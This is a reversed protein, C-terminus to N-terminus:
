KWWRILKPQAHFFLNAHSLVCLFITFVDVSHCIMQAYFSLFIAFDPKTIFTWQLFLRICFRVIEYIFQKWQCNNHFNNFM